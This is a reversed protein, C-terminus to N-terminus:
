KRRRRRVLAFLATGLLLASAPEPAVFAAAGSNPNNGEISAPSRWNLGFVDFRISASRGPVYGIVQVGVRVAPAEPAHKDRHLGVGLDVGAVLAGNLTLLDGEGNAIGAIGGPPFILGFAEADVFDGKAIEVYDSPDEPDFFRIADFENPAEPRFAATLFLDEFSPKKENEYADDLFRLELTFGDVDFIDVGGSNEVAGDGTIMLEPSTNNPDFPDTGFCDVLAGQGTAPELLLDARAASGVTFVLM